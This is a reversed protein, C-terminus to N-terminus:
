IPKRRDPITMLRLLYGTSIIDPQPYYKEILNVCLSNTRLSCGLVKRLYQGTYSREVGVVTEPTGETVFTGGNEGGGSGPDIAWDVTNVVKLNHEIVIVTHGAEVLGNL